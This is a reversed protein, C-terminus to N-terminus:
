KQSCFECKSLVAIRENGQILDPWLDYVDTEFYMAFAFMKEISPNSRGAELARVTTETVGMDVAVQTQTGKAIRLEKFRQRPKFARPQANKQM